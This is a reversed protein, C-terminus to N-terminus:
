SWARHVEAIHENGDYEEIQWVADNPIEVVRLKACMGNAADGLEEVVAVLEPDDRPIDLDCIQAEEHAKNSAKREEMTMEHWRSQDDPRDEPPVIWYNKFSGFREDPEVWLPLGKREAYRRVGQESLGFGGFCANIVVKKM